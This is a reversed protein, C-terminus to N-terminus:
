PPGGLKTRDQMVKRPGAKKVEGLEEELEDHDNMLNGWIAGFGFVANMKQAGQWVRKQTDSLIPTVYPEIAQPYFENGYMIYDACLSWGDDWHSSLAESLRARQDDSLYLDRDIADIVLGIGAQKRNASRKQAEAEYRTWQEPTLDKKVAARLGEQLLKTADFGTGPRNRAVGPARRAVQADALKAVVDNLAAEADTKLKQLEQANLGCVHRVFILEARVAPKGQMTLQQIMPARNVGAKMVANARVKRVLNTELRRTEAKIAGIAGKATPVAKEV